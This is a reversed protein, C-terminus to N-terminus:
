RLLKDSSELHPQRSERSAMEQELFPGLSALSDRSKGLTLRNIVVRQVLQGLEHFERVRLRQTLGYDTYSNIYTTAALRFFAAVPRIEDIRAVQVDPSRPELLFICRIRAPETQLRFGPQDLNLFCKDLESSLVLKPLADNAGFLISASDPWLRLHPYTPRICFEGSIEELVATDDGLIPYGGRALAGVITSKGTGSLGVFAM